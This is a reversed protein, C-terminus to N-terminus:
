TASRQFAFRQGSKVKWFTLFLTAISSVRQGGFIDLVIKQIGFFDNQIGFFDNQIGFSDSQDKTDLFLMKYGFFRMGCSPTLGGSPIMHSRPCQWGQVVEM